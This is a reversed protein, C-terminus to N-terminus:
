DNFKRANKKYKGGTLLKLASCIYYSFKMSCLINANNKM